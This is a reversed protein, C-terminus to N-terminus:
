KGTKQRLEECEGKHDIEVGANKAFCSNSYTKGDKGCVPAWITICPRERIQEQTQGKTQEQSQEQAQEKAQEQIRMKLQAADEKINEAREQTKQKMQELNGFLTNSSAKKEKLRKLVELQLDQDGGIKELYSQFKEQDHSSMNDLNEHLRNLANVQAQLIAEKAQEPIKNELELLIELNKFNKYKSGDIENLNKELRESIKDKDELKEIIIGFHELNKEKVNKIRELIEPKDSLNKELRDMLRQHKITSDTYRDIFKDIKPNDAAKEKFKEVQNKVKEMEKQYKEFSKQFIEENGTKEALKKAEILKEDAWRLRLEAKKVKNFTFASRVERWFNKAFYFPNDPLIKPESIGLDDATIDEDAAIEEDVTIADTNGQALINASIFLGGIVFIAIFILIKTKM